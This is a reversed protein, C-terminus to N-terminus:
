FELRLGMTFTSLTSYRYTNSNGNESSSPNLGKRKTSMFLNDGSVFINFKSLMLKETFKNPMTYGIRANNLGLYDAKTLFRTSQSAVNADQGASLRPIDTIDGPKQWRGRIDTSWNNAGATANTMLGAYAGDYVYGGLRYVFQATFDFNKYAANLRFAGRVKPISSKGVYNLTAQSYTDTTTKGVNANPNASLYDVMSPITVDGTNYIGDSNKDDFYRFWLATGTASDVGAWERLYFDYISKGESWAFPADNADLVKALGTAPDIPMKTIKNELIEGNIGFDLSLGGRNEAKLLHANLDFEIGSNRLQGDNVQIIAVGTSPATRREFILNDTNKVYYDVGLDLSNNFLTAELGVQAIKSTEWTLDKNGPIPRPVISYDNNVVGINFTDYGPWLGVGEQDGTVGYSGKLKLYNIYKSNELFKEKSIVWSAGVSGFTGWKDDKFRSSGDRRGTGTLYYKGDYNYNLQGFYSETKASETYSVTPSGTLIYQSLDFSDTIISRYKSAEIANDKWSNSEHAVFAEFNHKDLNGKYRLLQLFNQMFYSQRNKYLSGLQKASSGYFPNNRLNREFDRYQAGYLTEFTLGKFLKVDFNFSGNFEKTDRRDRDYKADAIANTLAGFGRQGTVADGGYDFQYGGYIPDAIMNGSVDRTFLPYISPINDVFWFISGSDSSQGNNNSRTGTFGINAGAKLWEKPQHSVNLRTTYRKFDSNIITGKEDLYGFSSFYRTKDNGGTFRVNTETRLSNSFGYDEWNEPNYRRTVGPRVQKTNPDILDAATAVNWVNYAPHIGAQSTDFLASNASAAPNASGNAWARNYLSEWTLGIYEEPSKIVDYRPLLMMNVSTKSDVEISTKNAKGKKTTIVVVGNAGRSGYVSTATADKLITLSEIDEPNIANITGTFPVGDLVYLPDRNGNVSGFGRIRITASSGPQGSGSIVNVGAVEGKLAQSINAVSKAQVNETKIKDATGVYAEKTTTGYGVVVVESLVTADDQMTVNISSTAGVLRTIEKMGLFTFVLTEGEKAKISYGGDFNTQVGRQTGKIVVNVGPLPGSADSVVGTITKEQAFSFQM